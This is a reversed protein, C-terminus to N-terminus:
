HGPPQLRPTGGRSRRKNAWTVRQTTGKTCLSSLRHWRNRVQHFPQAVPGESTRGTPM